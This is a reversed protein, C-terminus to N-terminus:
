SFYIYTKLNFFIYLFSYLNKKKKQFPFSYLNTSLVARFLM